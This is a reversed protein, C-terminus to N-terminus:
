TMMKVQNICPILMPLFPYSLTGQHNNNRLVGSGKGEGQKPFLNQNLCIVYGRPATLAKSKVWDYICYAVKCKSQTKYLEWVNNIWLFETGM